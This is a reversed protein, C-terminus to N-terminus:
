NKFVLMNTFNRFSFNTAMDLCPNKEKMLYTLYKNEYFMINKVQFM